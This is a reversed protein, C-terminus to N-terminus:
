AETHTAIAEGADSHDLFTFAVSEIDDTRTHVPAVARSAPISHSREGDHTRMFQAVRPVINARFRSGNFIGYHGVKPALYHFKKGASLGILLDHAASCQGCGTIDDMEGEITMLAVRAISALDVAEGRHTMEGKPLLHKVFVTDITQLYFEATLDMVALYEDYFTRHKEADDGDGRVLSRFLEQHANAHRDLNMSMFGTLQLFGPYVTRGSGPQTWPVGSIVNREFWASGKEEALRNVATPSVRTDIPGGALTMSRPVAADGAREMLAVAALVPVSPQCVAFVHVDGGFLQLMERVYDIYDDLNFPGAAYPVERADCWDTIFVEHDPLFAEVTGRLLTAFHGSMPAVILLRPDQAARERPVDRKFHLLQCFPRQWVVQEAVNVERGDVITSKLGFSPKAYRRTTREFLELAASAHRGAATETFPNFPNNLVSRYSGAMARMPAMAVHGLEYWHYLLNTGRREADCATLRAHVGRTVETVRISRDSVMLM